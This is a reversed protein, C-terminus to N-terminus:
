IFEVRSQTNAVFYALEGGRESESEKCGSRTMRVQHAKSEGLQSSQLIKREKTTFIKRSGDTTFSASQQQLQLRTRVVAIAHACYM